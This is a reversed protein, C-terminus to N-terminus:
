SETQAEIIAELAAVRASLASLDDANVPPQLRFEMAEGDEQAIVHLTMAELDYVASHCTQWTTVEGDREREAYAERAAQLVDAFAAAPTGATLDHMGVFETYWVDSPETITYARTYTLAELLARMGSYTGSDPYAAAIINWRELGAGNATVGNTVIANHTEDQTYPTYVTGDANLTVGRRHFNTIYPADDTVDIIEAANEAFEILLTQEPDAILYHLEYGMGHLVMPFEITLHHRIYDAAAQASDFHDLIFRILMLANITHYSEQDPLARNQGYDDPVINMCMCLKADNIGDLMMFPLLQYAAPDGGALVAVESLAPLSCMGVTAHRNGIAPVTVAFEATNGYTWDYNRGFYNGNRIASCAGAQVQAVTGSFYRYANEYDIWSFWIAHLYPEIREIAVPGGQRSISENIAAVLSNKADTSLQDMNGIKQLVLEAFEMGPEVPPITTPGISPYIYVPFAPSKAVYDDGILRLEMDAYGSVLADNLTLVASVVGDECTCAIAYCVGDPRKYALETQCGPYKAIFDAADIVVRRARIEGDIAIMTRKEHSLYVDEM